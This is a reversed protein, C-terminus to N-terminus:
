QDDRLPILGCEEVGQRRSPWYTAVVILIFVAGMGLVVHAQAWWLADIVASFMHSM